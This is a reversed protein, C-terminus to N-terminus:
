HTIFQVTDQTRQELLINKQNKTIKEISKQDFHRVTYLSVNKNIRVRFRSKLKSVLEDLINIM